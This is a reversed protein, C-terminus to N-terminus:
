VALNKGTVNRNQFSAQKNYTGLCIVDLTRFTCANAAGASGIMIVVYM